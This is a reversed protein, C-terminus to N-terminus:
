RVFVNVDNIRHVSKLTPHLSLEAGGEGVEQDNGPRCQLPTGEEEGHPGHAIQHAGEQRAVEEVLADHVPVQDHEQSHNAVPRDNRHNRPAAQIFGHYDNVHDLAGKPAPQIRTLLDTKDFLHLKMM